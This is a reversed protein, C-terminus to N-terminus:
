TRIIRSSYCGPIANHLDIYSIKSNDLIDSIMEPSITNEDKLHAEIMMGDKDYCRLSIKRRYVVEPISNDETDAEEVNLNVFIPGSSRYPSNVPHHTYSLSYVEDGIAADKLSIRCPYGPYSDVIIRRIGQTELEENSLQTLYQFDAKKLGVVKFNNKM